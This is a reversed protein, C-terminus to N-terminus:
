NNAQNILEKASSLLKDTIESGGMIRAIEYVREEDDLPRVTTEVRDGVLKKEIFLHSDSASAVQASHTVCLVQAYGGSQKLKFGLKQATKGSIGTDIEDYILTQTGEKKAFVTKMALMIRALEGGSAIKSLPKPAEGPNTSILFQVDDCGCSNLECQRIDVNFGVKDMDLYKLEAMIEECLRTAGSKRINSLDEALKQAQATLSIIQKQYEATQIESLEISDLAKATKDRYDLIEDISKGYKRKLRNITYLRGEIVDLAADPNEIEADRMDYYTEAIDTLESLIEELRDIYEEGKPYIDSLETISKKAMEILQCASTGKSNHYLARYIVSVNKSIRELNKIKLKRSELEEEEGRKLKASDIDDLQYKYLDIMRQKEADDMNLSALAKQAECLKQYVSLYESIDIRQALYADLLGLHQSDDLLTQNDHQGHINILYKLVERLLSAPVVRSNLRAKSRGDAYIDRQVFIGGDEDCEVGLDNIYKKNQESIDSFYASVMAHDEGSRVLERASRAGTLLSISDIIMSKGAGTEGTLANFGPSFEIDCSKIVAINNIHLASLM